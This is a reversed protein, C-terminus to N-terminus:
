VPVETDVEMENLRASPTESSWPSFAISRVIFSIWTGTLM